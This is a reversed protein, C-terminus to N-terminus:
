IRRRACLIVPFQMGTPMFNGFALFAHFGDLHGLFATPRLETRRAPSGLVLFADATIALPMARCAAPPPLPGLRSRWSGGKKNGRRLFPAVRRSSRRQLFPVLREVVRSPGVRM